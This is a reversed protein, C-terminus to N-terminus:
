WKYKLSKKIHMHTQKCKRVHIKSFTFVCVCCSEKVKWRGFRSMLSQDIQLLTSSMKGIHWVTASFEFDYALLTFKDIM